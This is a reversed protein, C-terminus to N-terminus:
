APTYTLLPQGKREMYGEGAAIHVSGDEGITIEDAKPLSPGLHGIRGDELELQFDRSRHAKVTRIGLDKGIMHNYARWRSGVPMARRLAASM